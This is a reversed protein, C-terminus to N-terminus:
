NNLIVPYKGYQFHPLGPWILPLTGIKM